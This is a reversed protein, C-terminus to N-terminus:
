PRAELILNFPTETARRFQSFGAEAIVEGLRAEGAQAGLARGVEQSLSTQTCISASFAYFARGVPNLNDAVRDNAFPEVLLVTGDASIANRAQKAATVPDGMDHLCDFFCILDYDNGPFTQASSVEFSVRDSVGAADAAKRAANVSPEHMDFGSFTSAPYAEAMAISSAGHGCGVDAIRAGAQLKAEVGDLAPIWTATLNSRYGPRFFREVGRFMRDDYESWAVGNGTRFADVIKDAAGWSAAVVEFAGAAIFVPSDEDALVMAHEAPLDYTESAADYNIYGGAAQTNLWERVSRENTETADALQQSTVPGATMGKYLGLRDGVYNLIGAQAAGIDTVVQGLFAELKSEDIPATTM